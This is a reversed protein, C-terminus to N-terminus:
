KRRAFALGVVLALSLVVASAALVVYFTINNTLAQPQQAAPATQPQRSGFPVITPVKQAESSAGTEAGASPAPQAGIAARWNAELQDVNLGYVKMLAENTSTGQKFTALLESMKTSGYTDILYRVISHAEGYFLNVQEPKGPLSSMARLNLLSNNRIAANLASQNASRLQGEAYMSLGENLWTPIRSFANNTLQETLLHTLEHATTSVVAPDSGLIFVENADPFAQGQTIIDQSTTQSQFPLAVDMEQKNRYVWVKVPQQLSQGAETKMKALTSQSTQFVLQAIQQSAYWYVTFQDGQITQWNFRTDLYTLDYQSTKLKNGGSDEIEYYYKMESGPTVYKAGSTQMVHEAQVMRGPTFTPYAYSYSTNSGVQYYLTIKSIDQNGQVQLHFTLDKPFHNDYSQSVVTIEGQALSMGISALAILLALVMALKRM